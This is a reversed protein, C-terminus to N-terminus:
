KAWRRHNARKANESRTIWECNSPLYGLLPDRREITLNDAYGSGRAWKCFVEFAYWADWIVIGVAGYNKYNSANKDNCRQKMGKWIRYLRANGARCAGGHKAKINRLKQRKIEPSCSTCASAHKRQIALRLCAYTRLVNSGCECKLLWVVSGAKNRESTASIATLMGVKRGTLDVANGM